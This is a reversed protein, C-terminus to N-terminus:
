GSYLLAVMIWELASVLDGGGEGSLELHVYNKIKLVAGKIRRSKHTIIELEGEFFLDVWQSITYEPHLNECQLPHLCNKLSNNEKHADFICLFM